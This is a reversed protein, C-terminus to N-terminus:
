SEESTALVHKKEKIVKCTLVVSALEKKPRSYHLPHHPAKNWM